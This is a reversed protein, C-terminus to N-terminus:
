SNDVDLNNNALLGAIIDADTLTGGQTLDMDKLVIQQTVGGANVGNPDVDITTDTGDSSFSLFNELTAETEGDLMDKLDLVDDVSGSVFGTQFDAITDVAPAVDTGDDGANWVFTDEGDGGILLDDGAGGILIDNGGLGFLASDGDDATLTEANDTGVIDPLVTVNLTGSNTDGDADVVDLAFNMDIATGDVDVGVNIGSVDFGKTPNTSNPDDNNLVELREFESEGTVVVSYGSLLGDVSVLINETALAQPDSGAYVEINADNLGSVVFEDLDEDWVVEEIVQGLDNLVVVSAIRVREGNVDDFDAGTTSAFDTEDLVAEADSLDYVQVQAGVRAGSQTQSVTFSAVSDSYHDTFSMTSIDDLNADSGNGLDEASGPVELGTVFDFRMLQGPDIANNGTGLGTQSTNVSDTGVVEGTVLIDRSLGGETLTSGELGYWDDSNPQLGLFSFAEGSGDDLKQFMTLTYTDNAETGADPNLVVTFVLAGDEDRAEITHNNNTLSLTITQGMVTTVGALAGVNSLSFTVDETDGRDAGVIEFFNLQETTAGTGTNGVLGKTPSVVGPEDDLINITLNGEAESGGIGNVTVAISDNFADDDVTDDGSPIISDNDITADLTYTYAISGGLEAADGDTPTYSNLTLTGEGTDIETTGDLAQLDALTLTIGGIVVDDIGDSASVSITGNVRESSDSDNAEDGDAYEGSGFPLGAEDVQETGTFSIGATDDVGTITITLTTTDKDEDATSGDTSADADALTYSFVDDM